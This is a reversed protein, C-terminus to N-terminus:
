TAFARQERSIGSLERGHRTPKRAALPRREIFRIRNLSRSMQHAGAFINAYSGNLTRELGGM